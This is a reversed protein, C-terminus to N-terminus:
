GGDNRWCLIGYNNVISWEKGVSGLRREEGNSHGRGEKLLLIGVKRIM